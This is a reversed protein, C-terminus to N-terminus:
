ASASRIPTTFPFCTSVLTPFPLDSCSSSRYCPSCSLRKSSLIGRRVSLVCFSISARRVKKCPGNVDPSPAECSELDGELEWCQKIANIIAEAKDAKTTGSTSGATAAAATSTLGHTGAANSSTAAETDVLAASSSSAAGTASCALWMMVVRLVLNM